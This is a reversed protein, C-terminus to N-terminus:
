EIVPDASGVLSMPVTLSLTRATKLDITLEFKTPQVVPLGAPKEGNLIRGVYIGAQRWADSRSSAPLAAPSDILM